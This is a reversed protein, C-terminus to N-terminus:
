PKEGHQAVGSASVRGQWAAIARMASARHAALSDSRASRPDSIEAGCSDCEVWYHPTWTNALVASKHACFPCPKMKRRGESTLVFHINGIEDASENVILKM